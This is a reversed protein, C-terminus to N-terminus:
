VMTGLCSVAPQIAFCAKAAIVLRPQRFRVIVVAQVAMETMECGNLLVM